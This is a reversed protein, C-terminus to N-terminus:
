KRETARTVADSAQLLLSDILRSIEGTNREPDSCGAAFQLAIAESTGGLEGEMRALTALPNSSAMCQEKLLHACVFTLAAIQHGLMENNRILRNLVEVIEPPVQDNM